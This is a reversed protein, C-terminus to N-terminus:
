VQGLLQHPKVQEVPLPCPRLLQTRLLLVLVAAAALLMRLPIIALLATVVTMARRLRCQRPTERVARLRDVMNRVVVVLAVTLGRTLNVAVVAVALRPSAILHPILVMIAKPQHPTLTDRVVEVWLWLMHRQASAWEQLREIAVLVLVAARLVEALVV